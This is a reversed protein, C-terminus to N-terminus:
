CLRQNANNWIDAVKIKDKTSAAVNVSIVIQDATVQDESTLKIGAGKGTTYESVTYEYPSNM